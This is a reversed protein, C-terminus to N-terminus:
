FGRKGEATVFGEAVLRNLVERLTSVSAGYAERLGELKLKQGPPLRGFVIDTRIRRYGDDSVAASEEGRETLSM